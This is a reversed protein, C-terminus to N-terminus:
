DIILKFEDADMWPRFKSRDHSFKNANFTAYITGDTDKEAIDMGMHDFIQSDYREYNGYIDHGERNCGAVFIQNEIARAMLMHKWAHFRSHAWNAPVILVDYCNAVNRNWIPFRIDYCIAMRLNWGKITITPSQEMGPSFIKNEGGAQFLHRKNYFNASGDSMIMFGRNFYRGNINACYSGWISFGYTSAWQKIAQITTGNDDEAISQLLQSDVTFGTNFMEPLVVIDIAPTLSKLRQEVSALNCNIEGLIIDHPILAVRLDETPM